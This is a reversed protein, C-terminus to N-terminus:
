TRAAAHMNTRARTCIRARTNAFVPARKSTPMHQAKNSCAYPDARTLMHQRAFSRAYQDNHSRAYEDACTHMHQRTHPHAYQDARSRISARSHMCTVAPMLIRAPSCTRAFLPRYMHRRTRTHTRHTYPEAPMSSRTHVRTHFYTRTHKCYAHALAYSAHAHPYARKQLQTRAYAHTQTHMDRRM